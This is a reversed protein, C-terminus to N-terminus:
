PRAGDRRPGGPGARVGGAAAGPRDRGGGGRRRVRPRDARDGGAAPHRRQGRDDLHAGGDRLDNEGGAVRRAAREVSVKMPDEADFRTAMRPAPIIPSTCRRAAPRAPAVTTPTIAEEGSRDRWTASSHRTSCAYAFRSSTTALSTSMTCM